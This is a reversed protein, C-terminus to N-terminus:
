RSVFEKKIFGVDGTDQDEVQYWNTTEKIVLLQSNAGYTAMVETSMSPAWRLNVWGSARTPRVTIRFPTVTRASAFERNLEELPDSISAVVPAAAASASSSQRAAPKNKQLFRSSVFCAYTGVGYGPKNYKFDILAWGYENYYCYVRSGYKLSGVVDGGPTDRVNLGKGNETYVYYYGATPSVSDDEALAAPTMAFTLLALVAAMMLSVLRKNM